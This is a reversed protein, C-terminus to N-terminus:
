NGEVLNKKHWIRTNIDSWITNHLQCRILEFQCHQWWSYLHNTKQSKKLTQKFISCSGSSRWYCPCTWYGLPLILLPPTLCIMYIGIVNANTVCYYLLRVKRKEVFFICFITQCWQWSMHETGEIPLHCCPGWNKSHKWSEDM